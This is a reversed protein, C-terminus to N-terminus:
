SKLLNRQNEPCKMAKAPRAPPLVPNCKSPTVFIVRKNVRRMVMGAYNSRHFQRYLWNWTRGMMAAQETIYKGLSMEGPKALVDYQDWNVLPRRKKRWAGKGNWKATTYTDEQETKHMRHLLDYAKILSEIIPDTEQHIAKFTIWNNVQVGEM